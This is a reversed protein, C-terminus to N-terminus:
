HRTWGYVLAPGLHRSAVAEIAPCVEPEGFKFTNVLCVQVEHTPGGPDDTQANAHLWRQQPRALAYCALATRRDESGYHRLLAPNDFNLSQFVVAIDVSGYPATALAALMDRVTDGRALVRAHETVQGWPAPQDALGPLQESTLWAGPRAGGLAQAVVGGSWLLTTNVDFGGAILVWPMRVISERDLDILLRGFSEASPLVPEVPALFADTWIGM